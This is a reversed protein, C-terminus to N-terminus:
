VWVVDLKKLTAELLELSVPQIHDICITINKKSDDTKLIYDGAFKRIYKIDSLKIKKYYLPPFYSQKICGNEIRYGGYKHIYFYTFIMFFGLFIFCYDRWETSDYIVNMSGFFLWFVGLIFNTITYRKKLKITM